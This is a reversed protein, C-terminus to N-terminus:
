RTKLSDRIERLLVIDEPTPPPAAPAAPKAMLGKMLKNVIIFVAFAIILFNLTEALVPGILVPGLKWTMWSSKPTIEGILPMIIGNVVATVFKGFAGGLVVAVALDIVNGRNVFTKFEQLLSM